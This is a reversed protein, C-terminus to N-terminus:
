PSPAASETSDVMNKGLEEKGVAEKGQPLWLTVRTGNGFTSQVDIHGGHLEIIEKVISMGLGTGPINGSDDARYFREFVRALQPPTMGIGEDRIEIGIEKAQSATEPSLVRMRVRGGDPSYKYANSLINSIAQRMKQHDAHIYLPTAPLDTEPGPRGHPPKYSSVVTNILERVDFTTRVFDKGRRAEIRALDLLENIISAMLGAQNYITQTIETRTADDFQETLLLEAFGYVSSMPTRLEHAATSLFESKMRDVETEQTVDRFYMVANVSAARSLSLGVEIVRSNPPKLEILTRKVAKGATQDCAKSRLMAMGPFPMSRECLLSILSDFRDETLRVVDESALGTMNLFAPSAYRVRREADFSVFGDPSLTFITDLQETREQAAEEADRRATIDTMSGVMRVPTGDKEREVVNGRDLVWFHRGRSTVMRYEIVYPVGEKMCQQIAENVRPLDDKHVVNIFGDIDHSLFEQGLELMQCWRMNHTVQNAPINWDWLAEGTANMVHRLRNESQRLAQTGADLKNELRTYSESLREIMTNFAASLRGFEDRRGIKLREPGPWGTDAIQEALTAMANVPAILRRASARALGNIVVVLFLGFGLYLFVLVNLKGLAVNRDESLVQVLGLPKFLEPLDLAVNASLPNKGLSGIQLVGRRDLLALSEDPNTDAILESLPIVLVLGGEINGTLNYTVPWAMVLLPPLTAQRDISATPKGTQMMSQYAPFAGLGKGLAAMRLNNSTLERGQYDALILRAQSFPLHQNRILPILYLDRGVSDALSNGTITNNALAEMQAATGALKIELAHSARSARTELLTQTNDLILQRTYLFSAAAVTAGILLAGALLTLTIRERLGLQDLRSLTRSFQPRLASRIRGILPLNFMRINFM